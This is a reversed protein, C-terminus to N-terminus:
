IWYGPPAIEIWDGEVNDAHLTIRRIYSSLLQYSSPIQVEFGNQSKLAIEDVVQSSLLEILQSRLQQSDGTALTSEYDPEIVARGISASIPQVSTFAAELFDEIDPNM